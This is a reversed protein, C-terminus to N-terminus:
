FSFDEETSEVESAQGVVPRAEGDGKKGLFQVTQAIVQTAKRRVGERDEYSEIKLKGVVAVPRGKSLYNSCNEATKGWTVIPVFTVSEKQEGQSDKWTENVAVTFKACANGKSTYLLEPDATLNGILIVLNVAM